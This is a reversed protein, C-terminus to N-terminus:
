AEQGSDEKGLESNAAPIFSDTRLYTSGHFGPHLTLNVVAWSVTPQTPFHAMSLEVGVTARAGAGPPGHCTQSPGSTSSIKM